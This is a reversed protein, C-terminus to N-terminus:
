QGIEEVFMWETPWDLAWSVGGGDDFRLVVWEAEGVRPIVQGYSAVAYRAEGGRLRRRLLVEAGGLVREDWGAEEIPRWRGMM